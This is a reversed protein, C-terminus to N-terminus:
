LDRFYSLLPRSLRFAHRSWVPDTANWRGFSEPRFESEARGGSRRSPFSVVIVDTFSLVAIIIIM